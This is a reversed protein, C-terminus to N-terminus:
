ELSTSAVFTQSVDILAVGNLFNRGLLVQYIFKNRGALTFEREIHITGLQVEMMIVPRRQGEAGHQKIKVHREIEREFEVKGGVSPDIMNFRVWQKGDREFEVIDLANLSSTKAGSDLKAKLKLNDPGLLVNEVYGYVPLQRGNMFTAKKEDKPEDIVLKEENSNKHSVNSKASSVNPEDIVLKEENSNKLSVNSKVSSINHQLVKSKYTRTYKQNAEGINGPSSKQAVENKNGSNNKKSALYEGKINDIITCGNILLIFLFTLLFYINKTQKPIM